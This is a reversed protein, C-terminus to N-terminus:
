SLTYVFDGPLPCGRERGGCLVPVFLTQFSAEVANHLCICVCLNKKELFVFKMYLLIGIDCLSM